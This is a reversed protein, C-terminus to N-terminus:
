RKANRGNCALGYVDVRLAWASLGRSLCLAAIASPRNGIRPLFPPRHVYTYFLSALRTFLVPLDGAATYVFAQLNPSAKGQKLRMFNTHIRFGSLCIHCPYKPLETEVSIQMGRMKRLRYPQLSIEPGGTGPIAGIKHVFLKVCLWSPNLSLAIPTVCRQSKGVIKRNWGLLNPRDGM